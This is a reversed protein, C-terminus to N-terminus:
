FLNVIKRKFMKLSNYFIDITADKECYFNYNKLLRRLPSNQRYNTPSFIYLFLHNSRLALNSVPVRFNMKSLLLDCDLICNVTKYLLIMDQVNRRVALSQLNVDYNNYACYKVFKNQVRQLNNIYKLYGPSWVVSAYELQSRVLSVYLQTLASSDHFGVTVRRVFGLMKFCKKTLTLIHHNYTLGSDLWVGLDKIVSLRELTHDGLRYNYILVDSKKSFTITKCKVFNLYLKNRDCWSILNDLDQQILECDVLSNVSRYIKLDDAYLLIKSSLIQKVDNIFISFFLPGLHSGQPVGSTVPVLRSKYGNMAVFQSRNSIYSIVWRLLCGHIGTMNLKNVLVRHNVQDFAKRFDTSVSDLQSGNDFAEYIDETYCLLNTCTSRGPYFGHQECIIQNKVFYFIQKYILLELVKSVIPLLSVGRYNEVLSRDGSKFIPVVQATKWRTPFQGLQLSQRYIIYLPKSLTHACSSLLLSPLGDPSSAKNKDLKLLVQCVDEQTIVIKSLTLNGAPTLEDNINDNDNVYVSQFYENFMDVADHATVSEKNGNKLVCPYGHNKKKSNAYSWFLKINNKINVQIHNLYLKHCLSLEKKVLARLRSFELYDVRSDFLKYRKHAKKKLSLLRILYKSFWGPHSRSKNSTRVLPVHESIVEFLKKYFIDVNTDVDCSSLHLDWNIVYLKNNLAQFDARRFDFKRTNSANTLLKHLEVEVQVCIAPHHIDLHSLPQEVHAVMPRTEINTFFLDLCRGRSNFVNNFQRLNLFSTFNQLYESKLDTPIDPELHGHNTLLWTQKSVNFDGLLIINDLQNNSALRDTVSELYSGFSETDMDPPLYVLGLVLNRYSGVQKLSIFLDETNPSELQTKRQTVISKNVLVVVGGGDHKDSTHSCRDRRYLNYREDGIEGDFVSRNLWSETLCIMDYNNQLINKNLDDLKTRLGQVNQLYINLGAMTVSRVLCDSTVITVPYYMYM